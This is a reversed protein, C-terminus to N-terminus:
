TPCQDTTNLEIVVNGDSVTVKGIGQPSLTINQLANVADVLQAVIQWLKNVPDGAKPKDIM